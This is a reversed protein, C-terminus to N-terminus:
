WHRGAGTARQPATGSSPTRRRWRRGGRRKRPSAAALPMVPGAGIKSPSFPNSFSTLPGSGIAPGNASPAAAPSRAIEHEEFGTDFAPRHLVVRLTGDLRRQVAGPILPRSSSWDFRDEDLTVVRRHVDDAALRLLPGRGAPLRGVMTQRVDHGGGQGVAFHGLSLEVGGAESVRFQERQHGPHLDNAVRFQAAEVGLGDAIM